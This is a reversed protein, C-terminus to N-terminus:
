LLNQKVISKKCVKSFTFFPINLTLHFKKNSIHNVIAIGESNAFSKCLSVLHIILKCVKHLDIIYKFHLISLSDQSIKKNSAKLSIQYHLLLMVIFDLLNEILHINGSSHHIHMLHMAKCTIIM